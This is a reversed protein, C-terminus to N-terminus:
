LGKGVPHLHVEEEGVMGEVHDRIMHLVLRPDAGTRRTFEALAPMNAAAMHMVQQHLQRQDVMNVQWADAMNAQWADINVPKNLTNYNNVAHQEVGM